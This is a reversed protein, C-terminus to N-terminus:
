FLLWLVLDWKRSAGGVGNARREFKCTLLDVNCDQTGRRDLVSRTWGIRVWYALRLTNGCKSAEYVREGSKAELARGGQRHVMFTRIKSGAVIDVM